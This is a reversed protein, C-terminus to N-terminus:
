RVHLDHAVRALLCLRGQCLVEDGAEGAGRDARVRFLGLHVDVLKLVGFDLLLCPAVLLSHQRCQRPVPPLWDRHGVEVEM